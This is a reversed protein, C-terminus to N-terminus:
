LAYPEQKTIHALTIAEATIERAEILKTLQQVDDTSTIRPDSAVENSGYDKALRSDRIARKEAVIDSWPRSVM